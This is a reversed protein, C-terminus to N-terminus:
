WARPLARRPEVGGLIGQSELAKLVPAVPRDLMLVTEHFTRSSFAARVGKVHTLASVLERTRAHSAEAVRQLGQPGMLSM